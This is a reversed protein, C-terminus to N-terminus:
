APVPIADLAHQLLMASYAPNKHGSDESQMAGDVAYDFKTFTGNTITQEPQRILRVGTGGAQHELADWIRAREPPGATAALPWAQLVRDRITYDKVKETPLPGPVYAVPAGTAAFVRAFRFARTMILWAEAATRLATESEFCTHDMARHLYPGMFEITKLRACYFIFADFDAASLTNRGKGNIMEVTEAAAGRAHITGNEMALLRFEPGAAGWFEVEFGSLDVLGQDIAQKVSALHSDGFICLRRKANHPSLM